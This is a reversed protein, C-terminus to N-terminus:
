ALHGTGKIIDVVKGIVEYYERDSEDIFIPPYNRSSESILAIRRHADDMRFKKLNAMGDILSIVYEGDRIDEGNYKKILVYDSDQVSKGYINAQDMSDGCARLAFVGETNKCRTSNPSVSLYGELSDSAFKTAIGCDVGGLVPISLLTGTSKAAGEAAVLAGNSQRVIKGQKELQLLHHRVQAAHTAGVREALQRYSFQSLDNHAALSLLKKRIDHM